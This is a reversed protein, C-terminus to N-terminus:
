TGEIGLATSVIGCLIGGLPFAVWAYSWAHFIAGAVFFIGTAVLMIMGSIMGALQEKRAKGKAIEPAAAEEYQKYLKDFRDKQMGFYIFISVAGAIIVFFLSLALIGSEFISGTIILSLVAVICLVVGLAIAIPFKRSFDDYEDLFDPPFTYGYPEATEQEITFDATADQAKKATEMEALIEDISGFESVVIGFAENENKGEAIFAEYKDVMMETINAKATIVEPTQPVTAFMNDVFVKIQNM